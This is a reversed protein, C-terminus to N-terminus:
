WLANGPAVFGVTSVAAAAFAVAELVLGSSSSEGGSFGVSLVRGSFYPDFLSKIVTTPCINCNTSCISIRINM